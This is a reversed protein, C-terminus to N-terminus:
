HNPYFRTFNDELLIRMPYLVDKFDVLKGRSFMCRGVFDALKPEKQVEIDRSHSMYFLQNEPNVCIICFVIYNRCIIQFIDNNCVLQCVLCSLKEPSNQLFIADFNNKGIKYAVSM